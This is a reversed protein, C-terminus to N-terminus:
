LPAESLLGVQQLFGLADWYAALRSIKGDRMELIWAIRASYSKGTAPIRGLAGTQTGTEVLECVAHSGATFFLKLEKKVDPAAAFIGSVYDKLEQKGRIAKGRIDDLVIDETWFAAMKEVDHSNYAALHDKLMKEVETSMDFSGKTKQTLNMRTQQEHTPKISRRVRNLKSNNLWLGQQKDYILVSGAPGVISAALLSVDGAGHGADLVRMGPALGARRFVEETLEGYFRSQNLLRELEGAPHGHVYTPSKQATDM